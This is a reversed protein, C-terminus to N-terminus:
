DIPRYFPLVNLLKIKKLKFVVIYECILFIEMNSPRFVANAARKAHFINCHVNTPEPLHQRNDEQHNVLRNTEYHQCSEQKNVPFRCLSLNLNVQKTDNLQQQVDESCCMDSHM